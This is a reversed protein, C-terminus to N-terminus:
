KLYNVLATVNPTGLGTVADWGVDSTCFQLCGSTVAGSSQSYNNGLIVDNMTNNVFGSGYLYSNFGYGGQNQMLKKWGTAGTGYVGSYNSAMQAIIGSWIPGSFSTGGGGQRATSSYYALAGTIFGSMSTSGLSFGTMCSAATSALLSKSPAPNSALLIAYCTNTMVTYTGTLGFTKDDAAAVVVIQEAGYKKSLTMGASIDDGSGSPAKVSVTMISGVISATFTGSVGSNGMASVDPMLRYGAGTCLRGALGNSNGTSDFGGCSSLKSDVAVATTQAVPTTIIYTGIGGSGTGLASIYSGPTVNIGVVYQGVKLTGYCSTCSVDTVTMTTATTFSTNISGIFSTGGQSKLYNTQYVPMAQYASPGGGGGPWAVEGLKYTTSTLASGGVALVYPSTTPSSKNSGWDGYDGTTGVWTVGYNAIGAAFNTDRAAQSKPETSTGYSMNVAVVNPLTYALKEATTLGAGSNAGIVVVISARPALAHSWQVDLNIEDLWDANTVGGSLDIVTFFPTKPDCGSGLGSSTSACYQLAPLGYATNFSTLATLIDTASGGPADVIAIVSGYGGSSLVSGTLTACGTPAYGTTCPVTYASYIDSPGYLGGGATPDKSATVLHARFVLDEVGEREEIGQRIDTGCATLLLGVCLLGSFLFLTKELPFLSRM